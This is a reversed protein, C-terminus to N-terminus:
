RRAIGEREASRRRGPRPDIAATIRTANSAPQVASGAVGTDVSGLAAAAAEALGDEATGVPTEAVAPVAFVGLEVTPEAASVARVVGGVVLRDVGAVLVDPLPLQM